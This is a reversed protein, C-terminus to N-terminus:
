GELGVMERHWVRHAWTPQEARARARGRARSGVPVTRGYTQTGYCRAAASTARARRAAAVHHRPTVLPATPLHNIYGGSGSSTQMKM